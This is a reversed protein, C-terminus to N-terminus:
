LLGPEDFFDDDQREMRRQRYADNARKQREVKMKHELLVLRLVGQNFEMDTERLPRRLIDLNTLACGINFFVDFSEEGLRWKTSFVSWLVKMRGFFSEVLVRKARLAEQEGDCVILTPVDRQAGRYGLDALVSRGGLLNNVAASHTRLITLDHVSGPHAKSILAATGSQANVFVEKKLAYM